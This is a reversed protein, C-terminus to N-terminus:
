YYLQLMYFHVSQALHIIIDIKAPLSAFSIEKSLDININCIEKPLTIFNNHTLIYLEYKNLLKNILNSGILGTAGTILCSKM